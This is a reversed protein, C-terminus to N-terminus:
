RQKWTFMSSAVYNWLAGIAAGAVGALWWRRESSYVLDAIGINALAGLGCILYFTALGRLISAGRLRQDRYTFANNLFFNFTMATVVAGTQASQFGAGVDKLLVDLVTLHVALGLAGVSLFMLLRIPLVRGIRKDILMVFFQLAVASDLKSSGAKRMRFRYPLEVVRLPEQTSALLDLLIKFGKGSLRPVAALLSSHRIAFFGSMPDSLRTGTVIAAAKTAAQSIFSRSRNFAGASGGTAYRTGVAVDAAGSAVAAVLEPLLSEDHQGDADIVAVIPAATSLAGETVASSLGRRGHRRILRVTHDTRAIGAILEPTGDTSGDDVFIIEHSVNGLAQRLGALLPAINEREHFTPIVVALELAPETPEGQSALAPRQDSPALRVAAGHLPQALSTLAM